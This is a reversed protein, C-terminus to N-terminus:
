KREYETNERHAALTLFYDSLIQYKCANSLNDIWWAAAKHFLEEPFSVNEEHVPSVFSKKVPVTNQFLKDCNM